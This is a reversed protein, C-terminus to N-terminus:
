YLARKLKQSYVPIFYSRYRLVREVKHVNVFNDKSIKIYVDEEMTSDKKVLYAIKWGSPTVTDKLRSRAELIRPHQYLDTIDQVYMLDTPYNSINNTTEVVVRCGLLAISLVFLLQKM